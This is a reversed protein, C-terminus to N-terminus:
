TRDRVVSGKNRPVKAAKPKIPAEIKTKKKECRRTPPGQNTLNRVPPELHHDTAVRVAVMRCKLFLEVREDFLKPSLGPKGVRRLTLTLQYTLHWLYQGCVLHVLGSAPLCGPNGVQRRDQSEATGEHHQLQM